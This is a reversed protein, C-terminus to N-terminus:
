GTPSSSAAAATGYAVFWSGASRTLLVQFLPNTGHADANSACKKQQDPPATAPANPYFVCITGTLTVNARGGRVTTSGARLSQARVTKPTVGKSLYLFLRRSDPKLYLAARDPRGTYLATMYAVATDAAAATAKPTATGAPASPTAPASHAAPAAAQGSGGGCGTLAAALCVTLLPLALLASGPARM